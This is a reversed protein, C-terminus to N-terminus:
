GEMEAPLRVMSSSYAGGPDTWEGTLTAPGSSLTGRYFALSRLPEIPSPSSRTM